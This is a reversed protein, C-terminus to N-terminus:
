APREALLMYNVDMDKSRSWRDAIPNYSVGTQDIVALGAKSLAAELEQSVRWAELAHGEHRNAVNLSLCLSLTCSLRDVKRRRSSHLLARPLLVM